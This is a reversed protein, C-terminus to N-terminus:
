WAEIALRRRKYLDAIRASNGATPDNREATNDTMHRMFVRTLGHIPTVVTQQM